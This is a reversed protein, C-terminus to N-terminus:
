ANLTLQKKNFYKLKPSATELVSQKYLEWNVKHQLSEQLTNENPYPAVIESFRKKVKDNAYKMFFGKSLMICEAGLSVLSVSSSETELSNNFSVRDLGFVDMPKLLEIQVFVPQEHAQPCQQARNQGSNLAHESQGDKKNITVHPSEGLDSGTKGEHDDHSTIKSSNNDSMGRKKRTKNKEYYDDRPRASTSRNRHPRRKYEHKSGQFSSIKSRYLRDSSELTQKRLPALRATVGKLQKLVQCSGSKVVYFWESTRSDKLIVMNRKFFHLLCQDPRELLRELPWDKMFELQSIFKIHDPMEGTGQRSMFIDFFDDRGVSLLKVTDHSTVTATRRSHHLLALEGFSTGKRMMAATQASSDGPRSITVLAQGSVIFYFNEAFHGQRIITRNPTVIDLWAVKTLKEQMHLPYEAFSPISQLGFMATQIQEPTRRNPHLKLISRVESSLNIERNARFYSPDFHLGYKKMNESSSEEGDSDPVRSLDTFTKLLASPSDSTKIIARALKLVNKVAVILKKFRGAIKGKPKEEMPGQKLGVPSTPSHSIQTMVQYLSWPKSNTKQRKLIASDEESYIHSDDDTKQLHMVPFFKVEKVTKGGRSDSRTPAEDNSHSIAPLLNEKQRKRSRPTTGADNVKSRVEAKASPSRSEQTDFPLPFNSWRKFFQSRSSMRDKLNDNEGFDPPKFATDQRFHEKTTRRVTNLRTDNYGRARKTQKERLGAKSGTRSRQRLINPLLLRLTNSKSRSSTRTDLTENILDPDIAYEDLKPFMLFNM